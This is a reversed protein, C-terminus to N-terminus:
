SNWAEEVVANFRPDFQQEASLAKPIIQNSYFLDVLAQQAAVALAEVNRRRRADGQVRDALLPEFRRQRQLLRFLSRVALM